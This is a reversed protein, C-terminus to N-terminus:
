LASNVSSLHSQFDPCDIFICPYKSHDSADIQSGFLDDLYPLLVDDIKAYLEDQPAFKSTTFMELGDAAAQATRLHMKIKAETDGPAATGDLSKNELVNKYALESAAKFDRTTTEVPVLDLNKAVYSKWAARATTEDLTSHKSKFQALLHRQRARLIIKDDV